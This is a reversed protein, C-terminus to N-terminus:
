GAALSKKPSFQQFFPFPQLGFEQENKQSLCFLSLTCEKSMNLKNNTDLLIQGNKRDLRTTDDGKEQARTVTM